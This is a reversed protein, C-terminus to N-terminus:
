NCIYIMCDRDNVIAYNIRIKILEYLGVFTIFVINIVVTIQFVISCHDHCIYFIDRNSDIVINIFM